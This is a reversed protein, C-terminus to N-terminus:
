QNNDAISEREKSHCYSLNDTRRDKLRKDNNDQTHLIAVFIM